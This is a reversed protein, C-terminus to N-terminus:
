ERIRSLAPKQSHTEHDEVQMNKKHATGSGLEAEEM